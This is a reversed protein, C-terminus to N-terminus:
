KAATISKVAITDGDLTGTVKVNEGAFARPTKQDSLQFVKGKPDVLVFKSGDGVCKLTCNKASGPLMHSAGCMSDSIAGTFTQQKPSAMALGALMFITGCLLGAKRM